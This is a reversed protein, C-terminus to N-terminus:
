VRGHTIAVIWNEAGIVTHVILKDIQNMTARKYCSTFSFSILLSISIVSHNPSELFSIVQWYRMLNIFFLLDYWNLIMEQVHVMLRTIMRLYHFINHCSILKNVDHYIHIRTNIQTKISMGLSCTQFFCFHSLESYSLSRNFQIWHQVCIPWILTFMQIHALAKLSSRLVQKLCLLPIM